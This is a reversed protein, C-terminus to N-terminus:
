LSGRFTFRGGFAARLFTTVILDCFFFVIVFPLAYQLCQVYLGVIEAIEM